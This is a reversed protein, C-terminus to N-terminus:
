RNALEEAVAVPPLASGIPAGSICQALARDLLGLVPTVAPGAALVLVGPGALPLVASRVGDVAAVRAPRVERGALLLSGLVRAGGTGAPGSLVADAGDAVSENRLLPEGAVDVETRSRVRGGPEGSRGLVLVERAVLRAGAALRVRLGARFDARACVVAPEPRWDLEAGAAVEASVRWHAPAGTVGPLVVTAGATGIRLRQGPGVAVALDLEDGGLPGGAAQVLHVADPGTPRVAVPSDDRWRLGAADRRVAARARM